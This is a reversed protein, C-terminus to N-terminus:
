RKSVTQVWLLSERQGQFHRCYLTFRVMQISVQGRQLPGTLTMAQMSSCPTMLLISAWRRSLSAFAGAGGSSTGGGLAGGRLGDNAVISTGGVYLQEVLALFRGIFGDAFHKEAGVHM